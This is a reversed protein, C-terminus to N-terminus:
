VVDDQRRQAILDAIAQVGLDEKALFGVAGSKEILEVLEDQERLSILVVAVSSNLAALREALEIGDEDGLEVDVLAVDPNLTKVLMTAEAGSSAQGVITAGQSSLLRSASTLFGENDDIIIYRLSV